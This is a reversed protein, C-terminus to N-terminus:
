ACLPVFLDLNMEDLMEFAVDIADNRSYCTRFRDDGLLKEGTSVKVIQTVAKDGCFDNIVIVIKGYDSTNVTIFSNTAGNTCHYNKYAEKIEKITM